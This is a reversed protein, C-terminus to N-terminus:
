EGKGYLIFYIWMTLQGMIFLGLVIGEAISSM